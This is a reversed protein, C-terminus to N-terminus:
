FPLDSSNDEFASMIKLPSHTDCKPAVYPKKLEKSKVELKQSDQIVSKDNIVEKM